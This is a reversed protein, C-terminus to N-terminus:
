RLIEWYEGMWVSLYYHLWLHLLGLQIQHGIKADEM